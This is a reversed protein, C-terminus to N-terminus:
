SEEISTYRPYTYGENNTLVKQGTDQNIVRICRVEGNQNSGGDSNDIWSQDELLDEAFKRFDSDSLVIEKTVEYPTGTLGENRAIRTADKLEELNVMKRGFIAKM